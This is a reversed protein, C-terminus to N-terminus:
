AIGSQARRFLDHDIVIAYADISVFLALTEVVHSVVRRDVAKFHEVFAVHIGVQPVCYTSVIGTAAPNVVTSVSEDDVTKTFTELDVVVACSRSQNGLYHCQIQFVGCDCISSTQVRWHMQSEATESTIGVSQHSSSSPKFQELGNVTCQRPRTFVCESTAAANAVLVGVPQSVLESDFLVHDVSTLEPSQHLGLLEVSGLRTASAGTRSHFHQVQSGKSGIVEGQFSDSSFDTTQSHVIFETFESQDSRFSIGYCGRLNGSDQSDLIGIAQGNTLIAKFHIAVFQLRDLGSCQVGICDTIGM